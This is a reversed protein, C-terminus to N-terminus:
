EKESVMRSLTRELITVNFDWNYMSYVFDRGAKGMKKRKSADLVLEYLKETLQQVNESEVIYGTENNKVVEPLGGVNSVIVPIGCASAEVIAVGFSEQKSMACYVDLKNLYNPVRTNPVRGAFQINKSLNLSSALQMMDKQQPGDGVLLLELRNAIDHRGELELRKILLAFGEILYKIGYKEEFKKVTGITIKEEKKLATPQFLEMDVGFPTVTINKNTNNLIDVVQKKMINSTSAVEDAALINKQIVKYNFKNKYPFDFVDSGWVSLLVLPFNVLRSLTGYGSAYHTNLIDPNIKRLLRKVTFSNLYYGFPAKIGLKYVRVKSIINNDKKPHMTILHIEHGRKALSNVWKVTHISSADALIAIKM